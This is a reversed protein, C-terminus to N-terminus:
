YLNSSVRCATSFCKYTSPRYTFPASIIHTCDFFMCKHTLTLTLYLCSLAFRVVISDRVVLYIGRHLAAALFVRRLDSALSVVLNGCFITSNLITIPGVFAVKRTSPIARGDKGLIHKQQLTTKVFCRFFLTLVWFCFAALWICLAALLFCM